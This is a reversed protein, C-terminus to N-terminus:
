EDEGDQIRKEGSKDDNKLESEVRRLAGTILSGHTAVSAQRWMFIALGGAVVLILGGVLLAPKRDIGSSEPPPATANSPQVSPTVGADAPVASTPTSPVDEPPKVEKPAVPAPMPPATSPPPAAADNTGPAANTEEALATVSGAAFVIILIYIWAKM